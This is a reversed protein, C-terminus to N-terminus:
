SLWGYLDMVLPLAEGGLPDLIASWDRVWDKRAEAPRMAGQPALGEGQHQLIEAGWAPQPGLAVRAPEAGSGLTVLPAAM